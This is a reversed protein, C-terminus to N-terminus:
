RFDETDRVAFRYIAYTKKGAQGWGREIAYGQKKLDSVRAPLRFCGFANLAELGTISGWQELYEVVYECQTRDGDPDYINDFFSRARTMREASDDM